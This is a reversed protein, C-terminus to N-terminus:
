TMKSELISIFWNRMPLFLHDPRAMGFTRRINAKSNAGVNKTRKSFKKVYFGGSSQNQHRTCYNLAFFAWLCDHDFRGDMYLTMMKLWDKLNPKPNHGSMYGGTRGPFLWLLAYEMLYMESYKCVPDPLVYPFHVASGDSDITLLKGQM